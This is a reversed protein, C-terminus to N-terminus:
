NGNSLTFGTVSVTQGTAISTNNINLDAGSIGVTGDIHATGGSTTLRYWAAATGAGAGATGTGNAISNLTLVGGSASPAFTANCALSALLVQSTVATDPSAPQSGSYINLM